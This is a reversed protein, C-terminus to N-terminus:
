DVSRTPTQDDSGAIPATVQTQPAAEPAAPTANLGGRAGGAPSSVRSAHPRLSGPESHVAKPLRIRLFGNEYTAEASEQHVPAPLLIEARFSGYRVQAEHYCIEDHESDDDRRGVVVLANDYLTVEITDESMGALEIKIRIMDATEHIDVPPRWQGAAHLLGYHQGQRLLEDRLDRFYRELSASAGGFQYEISRFRLRM